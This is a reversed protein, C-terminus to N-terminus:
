RPVLRRRVRYEVEEAGLSNGDSDFADFSYAGPGEETLIHKALYVGTKVKEVAPEAVNGDKISCVVKDPDFPDGSVPHLVELEMELCDGVDYTRAINRPDSM